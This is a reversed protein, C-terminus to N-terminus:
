YWCKRDHGKMMCIDPDRQFCKLTPDLAGAMMIGTSAKDYPHGGLAETKLKM